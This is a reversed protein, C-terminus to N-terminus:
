ITRDQKENKKFRLYSITAWSVSAVTMVAFLVNAAVVLKQWPPMIRIIRTNKGIGNMANSHAVTYLIRKASNRVAWALEGSGSTKCENLLAVTNASANGDVMDCGALMMDIISMYYDTQFYWMDTIAFGTMGCEGRLFDTIMEKCAGNWVVGLRNYGVMVNKADGKVIPIAFAKAYIERISQENAWTCVGMRATEQDNMFCHKNYVYMGHSQMGKVEEACIMGSLFPDESYYEYNRGSYPSRHINSGPGYLGSYGAWLADEGIMNGVNYVLDKNFSSARIGGAPYGMARSDKDPDDTKAALGNVCKGYKETLGMPGNHDLTKIKGISEIAATYRAGAKLLTVMDDWLLQDMFTDWLPDNFSIEDGNEDQRMDILQLGQNQGFKPYEVNDSKPTKMEMDKGMQTTWELKAYDERDLKVTGEWNNRSVYVVSNNGRGTYKNIDAFDFLNEIKKGTAESWSYKIAEESSLNYNYAKVLDKNGAADMKGSSPSHGKAALVNNVAEHAGNGVTLYYTGNELVYTKKNEADYSAFDREDVEVSVKVKEGPDLLKTKEFGVLEVAAKEIGGPAYPKQLYVQVVEKGKESGINEVDVTVTYVHDSTKDVTYNSYEFQTYSAGYGFPYSVVDNYIFEGTNARGTVYDEYRTEAYRYGVYIGEQYVLYKGSNTTNGIIVPGSYPKDSPATSAIESDINGSYAYYGFNSHVPNLCNDAWITDTLHGSPTTNGALLDAVGYLGTQGPTGIWLAADIKYAPDKIFDSSIMNATNLLVIIKKFTKGKLQALGELLGKEKPTLRLFDGNTSDSPDSENFKEIDLDSGEGGIRGLVVIAADGYQEYSGKTASYVADWPAGNLTGAVTDFGTPSRKTGRKYLDANEMYFNWLESNVSFLNDRELAEKLTPATSVDVQGSGTGGYVLDISTVGFLSIKRNGEKLPLANNENKLLVAGEELTEECMERGAQVLSKVNKYASPFYDTNEDSADGVVETRFTAQGLTSSIVTANDMLIVSGALMIGLLSASTMVAAKQLKVTTSRKM